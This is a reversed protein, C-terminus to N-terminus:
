IEAGQLFHVPHNRCNPIERTQAQEYAAKKRRAMTSVKNWTAM